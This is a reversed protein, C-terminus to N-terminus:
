RRLDLVVEDDLLDCLEPRAPPLREVAQAFGDKVDDSSCSSSSGWRSLGGQRIGPSSRAALYNAPLVM